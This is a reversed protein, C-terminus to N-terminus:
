ILPLNILIQNLYNSNANNLDMNESSLQAIQDSFDNIQFNLKTIQSQLDLITENLQNIEDDKSCSSIILFILAFLINYSRM